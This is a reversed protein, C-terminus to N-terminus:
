IWRKNRRTEKIPFFTLKFLKCVFLISALDLQEVFVNKTNAELRIKDAAANAKKLDRCAM